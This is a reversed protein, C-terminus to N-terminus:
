ERQRRERDMSVLLDRFLYGRVADVMREVTYSARFHRHGADGMARRTESDAALDLIAEAFATSELTPVLVGTRGPLVVERLGGVDTAIIPRALAMAELVSMPLGEVDSTVCVIDAATILEAVDSREGLVTM